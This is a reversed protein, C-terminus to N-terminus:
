SVLEEEEETFLTILGNREVYKFYDYFLKSLPGNLVETQSYGLESTAIAMMTHTWHGGASSGEEKEWYKPLQSGDKMYAGFLRMKTIFNCNPVEKLQEEVAKGWDEMDKQWDNNYIWNIFEEYTRSCISIALLLDGVNVSTPEDSVFACNFRKM